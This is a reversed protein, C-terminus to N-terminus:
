EFLYETNRQEDIYSTYKDNLLFVTRNDIKIARFIDADARECLELLKIYIASPVPPM